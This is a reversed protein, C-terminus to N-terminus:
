NHPKYLSEPNPAPLATNNEFIFRSLENRYLKQDGIIKILEYLKTNREKRPKVERYKLETLLTFNFQKFHLMKIVKCRKPDNPISKYVLVHESQTIERVMKRERILQSVKKEHLMGRQQLRSRAERREEALHAEIAPDITEAGSKWHKQNRFIKFNELDFSYDKFMTRFQADSLQFSQTEGKSFLYYNGLRSRVLYYEELESLVQCNFCILLDRKAKQIQVPKVFCIAAGIYLLYFCMPYRQLYLINKLPNWLHQDRKEIKNLLYVLTKLDSSHISLQVLM